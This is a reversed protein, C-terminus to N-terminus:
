LIVINLAHNSTIFERVLDAFSVWTLINQNHRLYPLTKNVFTSDQFGVGPASGFQCKVGHKIIIKFLKGCMISSYINNVIDM